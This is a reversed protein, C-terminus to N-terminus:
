AQPAAPPPNTRLEQVIVENLNQRAYSAAVKLANKIAREGSSGHCIICAGDIGLLPAGGYTAYDYKVMLGKMARTANEREASLQPIVEQQLVKMFHSFAGEGYKLVVNGVFGDCVVVDAPGEHIERGEVNGKFREKLPSNKFLAFAGKTLDDGKEEEEGVNLLGVRPNEVGLIHRAYVSGMIGYQYLWEPRSNLNAGVDMLVLPGKETPIVAAIGPRHVGPLIRRTFHGGAVMAGTNGASVIGQVKQQVLLGWCRIISSDPKRRLAEVPRENMTVVQTCHFLELRSREPGQPLLPEVQAQDGVLVVTLDPEAQVAQVAGAVIPGPAHDGGMADLAIRM